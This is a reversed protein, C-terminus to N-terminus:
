DSASRTAAERAEVREKVSHLWHAVEDGSDDLMGLSQIACGADEEALGLHGVARWYLCAEGDCDAQIGLTQRLECCDTM